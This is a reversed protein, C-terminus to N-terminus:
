RPLESRQFHGLRNQSDEASRQPQIAPRGGGTPSTDSLHLFLRRSYSARITPHPRTQSHSRSFQTRSVALSTSFSGVIVVVNAHSSIISHHVSMSCIGRQSQCTEGRRCREEM